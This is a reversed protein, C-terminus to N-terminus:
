RADFGPFLDDGVRFVLDFIARPHLHTALTFSPNLVNKFGLYLKLGRLVGFVRFM